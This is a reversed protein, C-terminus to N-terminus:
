RLVVGIAVTMRALYDDRSAAQHKIGLSASILTQAVPAAAGASARAAIAATVLEEFRRPATEVVAGLLDPNDAIVASIDATLPGVYSGAWTDFARVLREDLPTATDALVREITELDRLLAQTAAARFLAPKSDFLFYLGPRSIRAARAVENMSTKQYGFRAFTLLASELVASRRDSETPAPPSPPSAALASGSM